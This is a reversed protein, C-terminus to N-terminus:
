KEAYISLYEKWLIPYKDAIIFDIEKLLEKPVNMRYFNFNKGKTISGNKKEYFNLTRLKFSELNQAYEFLNEKSDGLFDLVEEFTDVPNLIMKKYRVLLRNNANWKHFLKLRLFYEHTFAENELLNKKLMKFAEVANYNEKSIKGAMIMRRILNDKFNRLIMILYNKNSNMRNLSNYEHGWYFTPKSYDIEVNFYNFAQWNIQYQDLWMRGRICRNTLKQFSLLFFHSGSCENTLLFQQNKLHEAKSVDILGGLDPFARKAYCNQSSFSLIISTIVILNKMNDRLKKM